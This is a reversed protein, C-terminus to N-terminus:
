KRAYKQTRADNIVGSWNLGFAFDYVNGDADKYCEMDFPMDEFQKEVTSMNAPMQMPLLASPESNGCILEMLAQNQVDFSVLIADAYPEIESLVVPNGTELVVVVPKDGMAKKTEQVLVMDERNKAQVTKGKYSRNTFSELPDGGAISEERADTATYTDYQLTIPVYGNGGKDIDSQEYGM